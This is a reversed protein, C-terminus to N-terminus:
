LSISIFYECLKASLTIPAFTFSLLMLLLLRLPPIKKTMAFSIKSFDPKLTVIDPSISEEVNTRSWVGFAPTFNNFSFSNVNDGLDVFSSM